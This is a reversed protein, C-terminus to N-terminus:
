WYLIGSVPRKNELAKIENIQWLRSPEYPTLKWLNRVILFDSIATYIFIKHKSTLLNESIECFVIDTSTLLTM